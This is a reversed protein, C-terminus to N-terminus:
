YSLKVIFTTIMKFAAFADVDREKIFKKVIFRASYNTTELNGFPVVARPAAQIFNADPSHSHSDPLPFKNARQRFFASHVFCSHSLVNVNLELLVNYRQPTLV